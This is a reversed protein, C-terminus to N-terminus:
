RVGHPVLEDDAEDALKGSGARGKRMVPLVSPKRDGPRCKAQDVFGVSLSPDSRIFVAPIPFPRQAGGLRAFDLPLQADRHQGDRVRGCRREASVTRDLEPAQPESRLSREARGVSDSMNPILSNPSAMHSANARDFDLQKRTKKADGYNLIPALLRALCVLSSRM